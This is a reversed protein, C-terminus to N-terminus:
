FMKEIETIWDSLTRQMWKKPRTSWQKGGLIGEMDELKETVIETAIDILQSRIPTDIVVHVGGDELKRKLARNVEGYWLKVAFRQSKSLPTEDYKMDAVSSLTPDESVSPFLSEWSSRFEDVCREINSALVEMINAVLPVQPIAPGKREERGTGNTTDLDGGDDDDEHLAEEDEAPPEYAPDNMTRAQFAPDKRLHDLLFTLNNILFIPPSCRSTNLRKKRFVSLASPEGGAVPSGDEGDDQSQLSLAVEAVTELDRVTAEICRATYNEVAALADQEEAASDGHQLLLKFSGFYQGYLVRLLYLVNTASEHVSCDFAPFWDTSWEGVSKKLEDRDVEGKSSAYTEFLDTVRSIFEAVVEDVKEIIDNNDGVIENATAKWQWVEEVLDVGGLLVDRFARSGDQTVAFLGIGTGRSALFMTTPDHFLEPEIQITRLLRHRIIDFGALAVECPLAIVDYSDELPELVYQKLVRSAGVVLNRVMCSAQILRHDGKQYHKGTTGERRASRFGGKMSTNEYSEVYTADFVESARRTILESCLPKVGKAIMETTEFYLFVKKVLEDVGQLEDPFSVFVKAVELINRLSSKKVLGARTPTGFAAQVSSLQSGAQHSTTTVGTASKFASVIYEEAITQIVARRKRTRELISDGYRNSDHSDLYEETFIVHDLTKGILAPDKEKRALVKFVYPPTNYCRSARNMEHIVTAIHEQSLEWEHVDNTIRKTRSSIDFTAEAFQDLTKGSARQLVELQNLHEELQKLSNM